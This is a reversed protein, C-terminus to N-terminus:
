KEKVYNGSAILYYYPTSSISTQFKKTQIRPYALANFYIDNLYGNWINENREVIGQANMIANQFSMLVDVHATIILTNYQTTTIDTFYYYRSFLPIWMYNANLANTGLVEIVPNSVSCEEKLECELNDTEVINKSVYNLPSNNKYFNVIM